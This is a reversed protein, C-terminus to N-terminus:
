LARRDKLWELWSDEYRWKLSWHPDAIQNYRVYLAWATRCVDEAWWRGVKDHSITLRNHAVINLISWLQPKDGGFFLLLYRALHEVNDPAPKQVTRWISSMKEFVYGLQTGRLSQNQVATWFEPNERPGPLMRLLEFLHALDPDDSIAPV